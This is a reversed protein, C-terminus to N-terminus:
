FYRLAVQCSIAFVCSGFTLGVVWPTVLLHHKGFHIRLFVADVAILFLAIVAALALVHLDLWMFGSSAALRSLMWATYIQAAALISLIPGFFSFVDRWSHVEWPTRSVLPRAQPRDLPPNPGVENSEPLLWSPPLPNPPASTRHISAGPGDLAAFDLEMARLAAEFEDAPQEEPDDTLLNSDGENRYREFKRAVDPDQTQPPLHQLV